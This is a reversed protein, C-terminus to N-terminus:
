DEVIVNELNLHTRPINTFRPRCIVREEVGYGLPNFLYEEAVLWHDLKRYLALRENRDLTKDISKLFTQYEDTKYKAEACWTSVISRRLISDPDPYDPMWSAFQLHFKNSAEFNDVEHINLTIGLKENLQTAIEQSIMKSAPNPVNALDLEGISSAHGIGVDRLVARAQNPDHELKIGPSHGPTRPHVLGGTAPTFLYGFISYSKPKITLALAKRISPNDLPAVVPNLFLFATSTTPSSLLTYEPLDDPLDVERLQTIDIIGNRYAEYYAQLQQHMDVEDFVITEIRQLNGTAAMFFNSNRELTIGEKEFRRLCFPGNSVINEPRWWDDGYENIVWHPLPFTIPLAVVYLFYNAASRLEVELTLPNIARVGVKGPDKLIGTRFERAGVIDDLTETYECGEEPSLNRLWAWVFQDATIKTGDTWYAEDHLYFTYRKGDDSIDWSRALHPKVSRVDDIRTLGSFCNPIIDWEFNIKGPDFTKIWEPYASIIITRNKIDRPDPHDDWGSDRDNANKMIANVNEYARKADLYKNNIHYSLGINLWLRQARDRDGLEDLLPFAEQYLAIAENHADSLRAKDGAKIFFESAKKNKGALKFHHALFGLFEDQRDPFLAELAKGVKHHFTRRRGVLLSNYAAEQTLSHKFIYELEPLRTKERVLDARQLQALHVELKQEAEAIAELLKYLFSKGIVAAMQLTDRVDEELRDIRALLVGQLTEPVGIEEIRDEVVWQGDEERLLGSDLLHQVIEELYFPNGESRTLILQRVNEPIIEPQLLERVLLQSEKHALRRLSIVAARHPFTSEIHNKLDWSGHEHDVRMLPIFMLPVRDSLPLLERITDLSSPDAWHLDELVLVTPAEAAVGEFYECLYILTQYKIAEGDMNQIAERELDAMKIDMLHAIYPFAQQAKEEGFIKNLRRRLAAKIKVQATGETLELDALLLQNIIWFSLSGGYSLARGELWRISSPAFHSEQQNVNRLSSNERAQEVLRTKGIGADGLLIVIQGQGHCLNSIATDLQAIEEERGVFPTRVGGIGRALGPEPNLGLVLAADIPESKGKAKIGTIAGFEFIHDIFKACAKSVLIHDPDAANELRAAINVADGVALYEHHDDSGVSGVVVEGTHIGVRMQFDDLLGELERRYDRMSDQLDLAARVAREPDDEHTLPAGFFALVGDGLLQAVTGEYRHVADSVRQHTGQVVEKWEEPDLKEAMATSGAIDAFFITVPKRQGEINTEALRLKEQLSPSASERLAQIRSTQLSVASDDLEAGCKKCFHADGPNQTACTPCPNSLPHSCQVCFVADADNKKGCQQCTM